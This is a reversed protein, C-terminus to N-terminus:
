LSSPSLSPAPLRRADGVRFLQQDPDGEVGGIDVRPTPAVTWADGERWMGVTSEVIRVGASDRVNAMASSAVRDGCAILLPPLLGLIWPKTVIM